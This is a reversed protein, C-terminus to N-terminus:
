RRPPLSRFFSWIEDRAELGNLARSPWLHGGSAVTYLALDGGAACRWRLAVVGNANVTTDAPLACHQLYRWRELVDPVPWVPVGGLDKGLFPVTTDDLAHIHIIAVVRVPRAYAVKFESGAVPAVGAILDSLEHALRYVMYAGNSHGTAYVRERDIPYRGALAEVLRRVFGVDDTRNSWQEYPGGGNWMHPTCCGEPYAVIFGATDALADFGSWSEMNAANDSYGHLALLLPVKGAPLTAPVHLRYARLGQETDLGLYGTPVTDHHEPPVPGGISRDAACAALAGALTVPLLALLPLRVVRRSLGITGM